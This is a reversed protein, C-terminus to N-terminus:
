AHPLTECGEHRGSCNQQHGLGPTANLKVTGVDLSCHKMLCISCHLPQDTLRENSPGENITLSSVLAILPGAPIRCGVFRLANTRLQQSAVKMDGEAIQSSGTNVLRSMQLRALSSGTTFGGRDAPLM